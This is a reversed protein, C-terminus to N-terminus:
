TRQKVFTGNDLERFATELEEQTNMVIPGHWAVPERLPKASLLLVHFAADGATTHVTDGEALVVLQGEEFQRGHEAGFSGTGEVVYALM